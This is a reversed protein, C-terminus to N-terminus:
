RIRYIKKTYGFEVFEDVVQWGNDAALWRLAKKVVEKRHKDM